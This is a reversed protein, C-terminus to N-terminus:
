PAVYSPKMTYFHVLGIGQTRGPKRIPHDYMLETAEPFKLAYCIAGVSHPKTGIPAIYMYKNGSDRQIDALTDFTEFPCSAAAIRINAHARTEELFEANSSFTIQPYEM